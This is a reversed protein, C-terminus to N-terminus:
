VPAPTSQGATPQNNLQKELAITKPSIASAEATGVPELHDVSRQRRGAPALHPNAHEGRAHLVGIYQDTAMEVRLSRGVPRREHQSIINDPFDILEAIAHAAKLNPVAHGIQRHYPRVGSIAREPSVAQGAPRSAASAAM